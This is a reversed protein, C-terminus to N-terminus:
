STALRSGVYCLLSLPGVDMGDNPNSGVIRAVFYSAWYSRRKKMLQM